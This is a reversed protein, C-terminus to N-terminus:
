KVDNFYKKLNKIIEERDEKEIERHVSALRVESILDSIILRAKRGEKTPFVPYVHNLGEGTYFHVDVGDEKMLVELLENDPFLVERTGCFIHTETVGKTEGLLPSVRYDGLSLGDAWKEGLTKCNDVFVIPDKKVYDEISSNQMSLDVWPSLLILKKPQPLNEYNLYETLALALGGGSSDGMLVIRDYHKATELYFNKVIEFTKECNSLPLKPYIPVIFPTESKKCVKKIFKYHQRRPSCFYAGGHLYVVATRCAVHTNVYLVKMGMFEKQDVQLSNLIKERKDCKTQPNNQQEEIKKILESETYRKETLRLYWEALTSVLSRHYYGYSVVFVLTVLLVMAVILYIWM